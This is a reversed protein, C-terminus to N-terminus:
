RAGLSRLMRQAATNRASPRSLELGPQDEFQAVVLMGAGAGRM